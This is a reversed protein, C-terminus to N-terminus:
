HKILLVVDGLFVKGQVVVPEDRNGSFSNGDCYALWVRHFNCFDPNVKCDSSVIWEFKCILTM